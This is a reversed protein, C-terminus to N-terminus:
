ESPAYRGTRYFEKLETEFTALPIDYEALVQGLDLSRRGVLQGTPGCGALYDFLILRGRPHVEMLFHALAWSQSYFESTLEAREMTVFRDLAIYGYGGGKVTAQFTAMRSGDPRGVQIRKGGQTVFGAGFYESIGEDFWSHTRTQLLKHNLQHTMEHLMTPFNFGGDRFFFGAGRMPIYLGASGAHKTYRVYQERNDFLVIDIGESAMRLGLAGMVDRYVRYHSHNAQLAQQLVSKASRTDVNTFFRLQGQLIVEFTPNLGLNERRKAGKNATLERLSKARSTSVWEGLVNEHDVRGFLEALRKDDPALQAATRLDNAASYQDIEINKSAREILQDVRQKTVNKLGKRAKGYRPKAFLAKRFYYEAEPLEGAKQAENARALVSKLTNDASPTREASHVPLPLISVLILTLGFRLM